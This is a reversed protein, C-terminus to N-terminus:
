RGVVLPGWPQVEEYGAKNYCALKKQMGDSRFQMKNMSVFVGPL